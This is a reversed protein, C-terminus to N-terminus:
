DEVFVVNTDGKNDQKTYWRPGEVARTFQQEFPVNRREWDRLHALMTSLEDERFTHTVWQEGEPMSGHTIMVRVYHM